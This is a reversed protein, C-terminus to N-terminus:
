RVVASSIWYHWYVLVWNPKKGPSGSGEPMESLQARLWESLHGSIGDPQVELRDPSTRYADIVPALSSRLSIAPL